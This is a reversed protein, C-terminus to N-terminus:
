NFQKFYMSIGPVMKSHAFSHGQVRKFINDAFYKCIM